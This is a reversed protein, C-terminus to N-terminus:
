PLRHALCQSLYNKQYFGVILANCYLICSTAIATKLHHFLTGFEAVMHRLHAFSACSNEATHALVKTRSRALLVSRLWPKWIYFWAHILNKAEQDQHGLATAIWPSLDKSKLDTSIDTFTSLHGCHIAHLLTSRVPSGLLADLIEALERKTKDLRLIANAQHPPCIPVSCLCPHLIHQM